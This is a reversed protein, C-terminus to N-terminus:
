DIFYLPFFKSAPATTMATSGATIAAIVAKIGLPRYHRSLCPLSSATKQM